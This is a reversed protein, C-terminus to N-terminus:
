FLMLAAVGCLEGVTVACGAIDGSMGGLNKRCRWIVFWSGAAATLGCLGPLGCLLIPLVIFAATLIWGARRHRWETGDAFMKAYGSTEMPQFSLVATAVCARCAAPIFVLGMRRGALSTGAFLSFMLLFLICVSIVAFSGVHSDKLIQRRTELDRRSLVADACDMFGDLHIFGTLLYPLVTVLAAGFLGLGAFILSGIAWLVGLLLGIVPLCLLMQQYLSANWNKYPCPIACFMGWAMFFAVDFGNM